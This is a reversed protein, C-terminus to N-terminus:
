AAVVGGSEPSAAIPLGGDARREISVLYEVAKKHDPICELCKTLYDRATMYDQELWAIEGLHFLAGGRLEPSKMAKKFRARARRYDGLNQYISGVQYASGVAHERHRKLYRNLHVRAADLRGQAVAVEALRLLAEPARTPDEVVATFYEEAKAYAGLQVCARGMRYQKHPHTESSTLLWPLSKEYYSRAEARGQAEYVMGLTFYIEYADDAACRGGALARVLFYEAKEVSGRHAYNLGIDRNIVSDFWGAVPLRVDGVTQFGREHSELRIATVRANSAGAAHRQIGIAAPFDNFVARVFEKNFASTEALRKPYFRDKEHAENEVSKFVDLEWTHACALARDLQELISGAGDRFLNAYFHYNLFRLYFEWEDCGFGSENIEPKYLGCRLAIDRSFCATGSLSSLVGGTPLLAPIVVTLGFRSEFAAQAEFFNSNLVQHNSFFVAGQRYSEDIESLVTERRIHTDADIMFVLESTTAGIGLNRAEDLNFYPRSTVRVCRIDRARGQRLWETRHLDIYAATGDPCDFDVVVIDYNDYPLHLWTPLSDKLYSLRGKCTTILTISTRSM